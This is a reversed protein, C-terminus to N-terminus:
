LAMLHTRSNGWVPQRANWKPRASIGLLSQGLDQVGNLVIIRDPTCCAAYSWKGRDRDFKSYIKSRSFPLKPGLTRFAM